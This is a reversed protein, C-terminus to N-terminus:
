SGPQLETYVGSNGELTFSGTGGGTIVLTSTDVGRAQLAQLCTSVKDVVTQTAAARDAVVKIHQNWGSYAQIGKLHLSPCTNIIQDALEACADGPKVGCRGQGVDVEIYVDLKGADTAAEAKVVENLMAINAANDVCVGLTREKSMLKALRKIKDKTVIENTLLIDRIGGQALVEVETLKAACLGAAGAMIQMKGLTSSKHCKAHPRLQVSNMKNVAGQMRNVNSSFADLNLILAPTDVNVSSMARISLSQSRGALLSTLALICGGRAM